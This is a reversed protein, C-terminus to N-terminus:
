KRVAMPRIAKRDKWSWYAWEIAGLVTYICAGLLMVVLWMIVDDMYSSM